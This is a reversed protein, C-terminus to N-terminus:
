SAGLEELVWVAGDTNELLWLLYRIDAHISRTLQPVYQWDAAMSEYNRDFVLAVLRGQADLTASGSNGGTNDLDSLFNVPVQGLSEDVWRSGVADAIRALVEPPVAFPPEGHKAVLGNLTTQPTYVVAEAPSYGKVQGFSVRLTGNADSYVPSTGRGIRAQHYLPRLRLLAGEHARTAPEQEDLWLELALALQIWPDESAQLEALSAGMLAERATAEALAPSAFLRELAAPITGVEAIFADLPPIREEAPLDQSRQLIWALVDQEAPLYLTNDLQALSDRLRQEDRAQFGPKRAADDEEREIALRVGTRATRLLQPFWNTLRVLRDRSAHVQWDAIEGDLEDLASGYRKRRQKDAAIWERLAQEEAAKRAAFDSAAFNDLMGQQNKRANELGFIYPGLRQEALPDVKALQRFIDLLDDYISISEPYRHVQAHRIEGATLSRFTRAPFGAIAVFDGPSVGDTSVELHFPPEFPVNDDSHGAPAGDPGVYARVLAFDATHRPWMWNDVDGGFTVLADSPVYVLRLDRLERAIVLRYELGGHFSEVACVRDTDAECEAVIDKRAQEIAKARRADKTRRGVAGLVQGTVDESSEVVRVRAGPGAWLEEDRSSAVVGDAVRDHEDDSAFALWRRVCHGNTIMLGDASVFSGSCHGLDVVAGLPASDLRALETAAIELGLGDLHAGMETLDEPLWMGEEAHIPAATLCLLLGTIM